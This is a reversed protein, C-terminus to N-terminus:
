SAGPEFGPAGVMYGRYILSNLASREALDAVTTGHTANQTADHGPPLDALTGPKPASHPLLIFGPPPPEPLPAEFAM